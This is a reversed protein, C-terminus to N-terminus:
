HLYRTQEAMRQQLAAAGAADIMEPTDLLDQLSRRARSLRSRVTGLPIDLQESVDEYRGGQICVLNLIERHEPSLKGMCERVKAFDVVMEHSPQITAQSIYPMPDYQSEFKKKRRYQGAFINFMIKSAWSFLNTGETYYDEKEIARLLTSQLLDDADSQNKTLRLAFRHLKDKEALLETHTFM